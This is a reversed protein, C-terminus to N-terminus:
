PEDFTIESLKTTIPVALDQVGLDHLFPIFSQIRAMQSSWERLIPPLKLDGIHEWFYDLHVPNDAAKSSSSWPALVSTESDEASKLGTRDGDDSSSAALCALLAVKIGM